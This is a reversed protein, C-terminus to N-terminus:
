SYNEKVQFVLWPDNAFRVLSILYVRKRHLSDKEQYFVEMKCKYIPEVGYTVRIQSKMAYGSVWNPDLQADPLIYEDLYTKVIGILQLQELIEIGQVELIIENEM